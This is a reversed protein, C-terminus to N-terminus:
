SSTRAKIEERLWNSIVFKRFATFTSKPNQANRLFSAITTRLSANRELPSEFGAAFAIEHLLEDLIRKREDNLWKRDIKCKEITYAFRPESSKIKGDREFELHAEPDTVEPNVLMPGEIADYTAGLLNIEAPIQFSTSIVHPTNSTDFHTSKYENCFPCCLLLNDWSFALWYYTAKPRYHEVHLQEVTFECYACKSHYINKLATKTDDQKYRDNHSENYKGNAVVSIRKEHTTQPPSPIMGLEFNDPSPYRLSQPIGENSLDKVICRM